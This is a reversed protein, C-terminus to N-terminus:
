ALSLDGQITTHQGKEGEGTVNVDGLGRRQGNGLAGRSEM